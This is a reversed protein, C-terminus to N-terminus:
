CLVGPFTLWLASLLLSYFNSVWGGNSEIWQNHQITCDTLWDIVDIVGQQCRRGQFWKALRGGFVFVSVLRGWNIGEGLAEHSVKRFITEANDNELELNRCLNDFFLGHKEELENGVKRMINAAKLHSSKKRGYVKYFIYDEALNRIFQRKQELSVITYTDRDWGDNRIDNNNETDTITVNPVSRALFM